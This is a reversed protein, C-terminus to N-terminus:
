EFAKNLSDLLSKTAGQVAEDVKKMLATAAAEKLIESVLKTLIASAIKAPSAGSEGGVNALEITPLMERTTKEGDNIAINVNNIYLQRISIM